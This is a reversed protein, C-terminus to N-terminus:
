NEYFIVINNTVKVMVRPFVNSIVAFCALSLSFTRYRMHYRTSTINVHQMIGIWFQLTQYHTIVREFMIPVVKSLHFLIDVYMYHM